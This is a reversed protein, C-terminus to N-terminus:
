TIYPDKCELVVMLRKFSFTTQIINLFEFQVYSLVGCKVMVSIAQKISNLSIFEVWGSFRVFGM